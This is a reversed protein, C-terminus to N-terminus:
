PFRLGIVPPYGFSPPRLRSPQQGFGGFVHSFRRSRQPREILSYIAFPTVVDGDNRESSLHGLQIEAAASLARISPDFPLSTLGSGEEVSNPLAYASRLRGRDINQLSGLCIM